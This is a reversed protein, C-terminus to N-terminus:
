SSIRIIEKVIDNGIREFAKELSATDDATIFNSDQSACYQLMSKALNTSDVSEQYTYEENSPYPTYGGDRDAWNNTEFQGPVLAFGITFVEVGSAHLADCEARSTINTSVDFEGEEWDGTELPEDEGYRYVLETTTSTVDYEEQVTRTREVDCVVRSSTNYSIWSGWSGYYWYQQYNYGGEWACEGGPVFASVVERTTYNENVDRTETTTTTTTIEARWTQTGDRAVWEMPGANKGDTMMIIYKLPTKSPNEIAHIAPENINLWTNATTLPPTSNTSELPTMSTIASEPITGWDMPVTRSSIIAGDFALLGTRLVRPSEGDEIQPGVHDDLLTMFNLASSQLGDMRRQADTPTNGYGDIPKDNFEMSGSNDMVLVISAPELPEKEYYRVVTEAKFKLNSFGLIQVLAPRTYGVVTATAERKVNDYSVNVSVGEAGDIVWNRYDYGLEDATYEGILGKERDQPIQEFNKMYIAASLATTDAITQSRADASSLMAFDMAAGMAGIIATLSLAWSLAATGSEDRKFRKLISNAKKLVAM